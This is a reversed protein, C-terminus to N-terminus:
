ATSSSKTLPTFLAMELHYYYEPVSQEQELDVESAQRVLVLVEPYDLHYAEEEARLFAVEEELHSAEVEQHFAVVVVPHFALDLHFAELPVVAGEEPHVSPRVVSPGVAAEGLISSGAPRTVM